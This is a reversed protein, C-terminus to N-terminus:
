MELALQSATQTTPRPSSRAVLPFLEEIASICRGGRAVLASNGSGSEDGSWVAVDSYDARLAETAGAWTGGKEDDSAVVFTADSLAYILKNRGMANAVSFGATPKYPTCVCVHGEIVAQRAEPERLQRVLSDALVAIVRGDADLAARMALQDVGKAGGSVVAYERGVALRAANQAVVAANPGVDRSGVIGFSRQSLLQPDGAVYLIPPASHGLRDVLKSPYSEDIPSLIAIGSLELQEREIAFATAADLRSAIREALDLPLSTASAIDAASQGLLTAPDTVADLVSWFERAKLPAVAADSVRQALLLAVTSADSQRAMM